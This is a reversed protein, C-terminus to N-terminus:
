NFGTEEVSLLKKASQLSPTKSIEKKFSLIPKILGGVNLCLTGDTRSETGHCM